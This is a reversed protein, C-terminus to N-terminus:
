PAHYLIIKMRAYMEQLVGERLDQIRWQTYGIKRLQLQHM